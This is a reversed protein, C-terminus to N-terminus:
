KFITWLIHLVLLHLFTKTKDRSYAFETQFPSTTKFAPNEILRSVPHSQEDTEPREFTNKAVCTYTQM